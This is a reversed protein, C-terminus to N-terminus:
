GLGRQEGHQGARPAERANGVLAPYATVPGVHEARDLLADPALAGDLPPQHVLHHRRRLPLRFHALAREGEGSPAVARRVGLADRQRREVAADGLVAHGVRVHADLQIAGPAPYRDRHEPGLPRKWLVERADVGGPGPEVRERQRPLQVVRDEVEAEVLRFQAQEHQARLAVRFRYQRGIRQQDGM